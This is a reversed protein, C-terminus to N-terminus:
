PRNRSTSSAMAPHVIQVWQPGSVSPSINMRFSFVLPYFGSFFLLSQPVPQLPSGQSQGPLGSSEWWQHPGAPFSGSESAAAARERIRIPRLIRPPYAPVRVPFLFWGSQLPGSVATFVSLAPSNRPRSQRGTQVSYAHRPSPKGASSRVPLPRSHPLFSAPPEKCHLLPVLCYHLIFFSPFVLKRFPLQNKHKTFLSSLLAIATNRLRLPRLEVCHLKRGKSQKGPAAAREGSFVIWQITKRANRVGSGILNGGSATMPEEGLARNVLAGSRQCSYCPLCECRIARRYWRLLASAQM